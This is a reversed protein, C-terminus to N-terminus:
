QSTGRAIVACHRGALDQIEFILTQFKGLRLLTLSPVEKTYLEIPKVNRNFIIPGQVKIVGIDYSASTSPLNRRYRPHPIVRDVKYRTGGSELDNTGM